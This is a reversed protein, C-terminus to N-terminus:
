SNHIISRIFFFQKGYTSQGPGEAYGFVGDSAHFRRAEQGRCYDLFGAVPVIVIVIDGPDFHYHGESGQPQNIIVHLLIELTGAIEHRYM